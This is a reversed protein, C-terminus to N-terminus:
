ATRVQLYDQEEPRKAYLRDRRKKPKIKNLTTKVCRQEDKVECKEWKWLQTMEQQHTNPRYSKKWFYLPNQYSRCQVKFVFIETNFLAWYKKQDQHAIWKSLKGGPYINFIDNKDATRQLEISCTLM